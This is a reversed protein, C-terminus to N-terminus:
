PGLAILRCSVRPGVDLRWLVAAHEFRRALEMHAATGTLAYLNAFVDNLSYRLGYAGLWALSVLVGDTLIHLWRITTLSVRVM